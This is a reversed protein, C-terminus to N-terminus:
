SRMERSRATVTFQMAQLSSGRSIIAAPGCSLGGQNLIGVRQGELVALVDKVTASLKPDPGETLRSLANGIQRYLVTVLLQFTFIMVRGMGPESSLAANDPFSIRVGSVATGMSKRLDEASDADLSDIIKVLGDLDPLEEEIREQVATALELLDVSGTPM